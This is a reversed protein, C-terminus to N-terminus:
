ISATWGTPMGRASRSRCAQASIAAKAGFRRYGLGSMLAAWCDAVQLASMGPATPAPSFLFGPLSPVVVDFADDPDGGFAAPDCLREILAAFEFM